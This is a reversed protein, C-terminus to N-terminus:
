KEIYACIYEYLPNAVGAVSLAPQIAILNECIEIYDSFYNLTTASTFLRGPYLHPM